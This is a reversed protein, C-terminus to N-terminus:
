PKNMLYGCSERSGLACAMRFDAAARDTDGKRAYVIGRNRYAEPNNPSLEIVRTYAELAEDLRGLMMCTSGLGLFAM